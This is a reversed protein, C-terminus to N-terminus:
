PSCLVLVVLEAEDTLSFASFFFFDCGKAEQLEPIELINKKIIEKNTLIMVIIIIRISISLPGCLRLREAKRRYSTFSSKMDIKQFTKPDFQTKAVFEKKGIGKDNCSLKM